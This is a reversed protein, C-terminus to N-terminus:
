PRSDGGIGQIRGLSALAQLVAQLLRQRQDRLSPTPFRRHEKPGCSAHPQEPSTPWSPARGPPAAPLVATHVGLAPPLTAPQPHGALKPLRGKRGLWFFLEWAPSMRTAILRTRPRDGRSKQPASIRAPRSSPAKPQIVM